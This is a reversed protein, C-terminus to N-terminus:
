QVQSLSNPFSGRLEGTEWLVADANIIDKHNSLLYAANDAEPWEVIPSLAKLDRKAYCWLIKLFADGNGKDTTRISQVVGLGVGKYVKLRRPRGM